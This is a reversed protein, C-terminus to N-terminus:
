DHRSFFGHPVDHEKLFSEIAAADGDFRRAVRELFRNDLPLDLLRSFLQTAEEDLHRGYEYESGGSFTQGVLRFRGRELKIRRLAYASDELYYVWPTNEYNMFGM